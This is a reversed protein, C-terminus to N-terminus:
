GEAGEQEEEAPLQEASLIRWQQGDWGLVLEVSVRGTGPVTSLDGDADQVRLSEMSTVAHVVATSGDGAQQVVEASHVVPGGGTVTIGEYAERLHQDEELAASGSASAPADSLGTVYAHRTGALEAVLLVPDEITPTPRAASEPVAEVAPAEQGATPDQHEHGWWAGLAVVLGSLLVLAGSLVAIRRLRPERLVDRISAPVLRGTALLSSAVRVQATSPTTPATVSPGHLRSRATATRPGSPPRRGRRPAPLAGAAPPQSPASPLSPAPQARPAPDTPETRLAPAPPAEEAAGTTPEALALAPDAVAAGALHVRRRLTRDQDQLVSDAWRRDSQRASLSEEQRLGRLDLVIVTGDGRRGLGQGHEAGLVWGRDHLAAILADLAERAHAIARREGTPPTGTGASRRGGRQSLVPAVERVYGEDELELVAPAATTGAVELAALLQAEASLREQEGATLGRLRVARPEHPTGLLVEERDGEVRRRADEELAPHARRAHRASPRTSLSRGSFQEDDVEDM